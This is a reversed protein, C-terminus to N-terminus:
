RVDPYHRALRQRAGFAWMVGVKLYIWNARLPGWAAVRRDSTRIIRPVLRVRGLKALRICLDAEEMVPTGPDCGGVELFQERRFFMAHDGFLLRVGRFFLHPRLLAPAYWTKIWNHFSTGWRTKEPGCILPTFGALSIRTNALTERIVAIADSPPITDAHLVCVLPGRAAAVGANIQTARGRTADIVRWNAERALECTADQSGGDVVLVEDPPPDLAAIAEILDPLAKAENLVPIVLSVSSM